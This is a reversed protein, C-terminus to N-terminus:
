LTTFSSNEPENSFFPLLSQDTAFHLICICIRVEDKGEGAMSQKM